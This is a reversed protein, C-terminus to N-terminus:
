VPEGYHERLAQDSEGSVDELDPASGILDKSYPARARGNEADVEVRAVSADELEYGEMATYPNQNRDGADYIFGLDDM